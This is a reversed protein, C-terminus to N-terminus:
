FSGTCSVTVTDAFLVGVEPLQEDPGFDSAPRGLLIEESKAYATTLDAPAYRHVCDTVGEVGIEGVLTYALYFGPDYVQVTVLATPDSPTALPRFHSERLRGETIKIVHDQPPLLALPADSKTLYLDGDYDAPWDFVYAELAAQETDTLVMDGDPDLGLDETLILTFFEDYDWGLRVGALAGAGDYVLSLRVDVFVHPHAQATAAPWLAGFTVLCAALTRSYPTQTM